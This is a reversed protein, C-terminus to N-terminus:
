WAHRGYFIQWSQGRFDGWVAHMARDGLALGLFSNCCPSAGAPSAQDSLRRNPAFSHGGDASFAGYIEFPAMLGQFERDRFRLGIEYSRIKIHKFM